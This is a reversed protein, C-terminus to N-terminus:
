VRLSADRSTASPGPPLAPCTHDSGPGTDPSRPAAPSGDSLRGLMGPTPSFVAAFHILWNPDSSSSTAWTSSTGPLPPGGQAVVEALHDGVTPQGREHVIHRDVDADRVQAGGNELFLDVLHEVAQLEPHEALAQEVGETVVHLLLTRGAAVVVSASSAACHSPCCAPGPGNRHARSRYTPRQCRPADVPDGDGVTVTRSRHEVIEAIQAPQSPSAAM